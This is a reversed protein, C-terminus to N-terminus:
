KRSRLLRMQVRAEHRRRCPRSRRALLYLMATCLWQFALSLQTSASSLAASGLVVSHNTRIATYESEGLTIMPATPAPDINSATPAIHQTQQTEDPYLMSNAQSLLSSMAAGQSPEAQPAIPSLASALISLAPATM